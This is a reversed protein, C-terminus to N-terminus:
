GSTSARATDAAESGQRALLEILLARVRGAAVSLRRDTRDIAHVEHVYPPLRVDLRALPHRECLWRVTADTFIGVMDSGALVEGVLEFDPSVFGYRPREGLMAELWDMFRGPPRSGAMDFGALASAPLPGRRARAVLPHGEGVVCVPHLRQVMQTVLGPPLTVDYLHCIAFDVRGAVLRAVLDDPYSVQVEVRVGPWRAHVMPMLDRAVVPAVFPGAGIVVPGEPQPGPRLEAEAAAIDGLIRRASDALALGAPTPVVGAASRLFLAVQLRDELLRLQKSLAAVSLNAAAAARRLSRHDAVTVVLALDRSQLRLPPGAM